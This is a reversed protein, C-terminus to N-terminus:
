LTRIESQAMSEVGCGGLMHVEAAVPHVFEVALDLVGQGDGVAIRGAHLM